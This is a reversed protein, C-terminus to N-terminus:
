LINAYLHIYINKNNGAEKAQLQGWTLAQKKILKFVVVGGGIEVSSTEDDVDAFLFCEFIYPPYSIQLSIIM